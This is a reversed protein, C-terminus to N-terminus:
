FFALSLDGRATLPPLIGFLTVYSIMRNNWIQNLPETLPLSPLSFMVYDSGGQIRFFERVERFGFVGGRRKCSEFLLQGVMKKYPETKM